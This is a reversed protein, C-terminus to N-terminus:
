LYIKFFRSFIFLSLDFGQVFLIRIAVDILGVKRFVMLMHPLLIVGLNTFFFIFFAKTTASVVVIQRDSFCLAVSVVFVLLKQLVKSSPYFIHQQVRTQVRIILNSLLVNCRQKVFADNILVLCKEYIVQHVLLSNSVLFIYQGDIIVQVNEKVL